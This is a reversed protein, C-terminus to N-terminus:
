HKRVTSNTSPITWICTSEEKPIPIDMVLFFFVELIYRFGQPSTPWPGTIDAGFVQKSRTPKDGLNQFPKNKMKAMICPECFSLKDKPALSIGFALNQLRKMDPVNVHGLRCHWLEASNDYVADSVAFSTASDSQVKQVINPGFYFETDLFYRGNHLFASFLFNGSKDFVRM